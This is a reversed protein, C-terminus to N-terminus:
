EVEKKVTRKKLSLRTKKTPLPRKDPSDEESNQQKVEVVRTVTKKRPSPGLKPREEPSSMEM